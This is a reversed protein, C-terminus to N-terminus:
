IPPCGSQGCSQKNQMQFQQAAAQSAKRRAEAEEPTMCLRTALHSGTQSSDDCVLKPKAAQVTSKTAVSVAAQTGAAPAPTANAMGPSASNSACAALTLILILILGCALTLKMM